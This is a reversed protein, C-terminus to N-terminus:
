DSASVKMRRAPRLAAFLVGGLVVVAIVFWVWIPVNTGGSGPLSASATSVPKGNGAKTLQFSISGSVPHSDASIIHYTATYTGVPGLPAVETAASDGLVSAHSTREWHKGDPGIVVIIDNGLQVPADFNFRVLSPGATLKSGAAPISGILVDHASAPTALGVVALAALLAGVVLVALRRM